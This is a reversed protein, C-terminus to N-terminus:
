AVLGGRQKGGAPRALEKRQRRLFNRLDDADGLLGSSLCRDYGAATIAGIDGDANGSRDFFGTGIANQKQRMVEDVSGLFTEIAM